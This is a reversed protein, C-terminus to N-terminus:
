QNFGVAVTANSVEDVLIFYGNEPNDKYKDLYLPSASKIDINNISNVKVAEPNPEFSLTDFDLQSKVAAIKVPVTASGYQLLYRKQPVLDDKGLWCLKSNLAKVGELVESGPILIDGRSIDIDDELELTISDGQKAHTLKDKYRNIAKVKSSQGSSLVKVTDGVKVTGSKVKGAYGRFDHFEDSQPRIVYQVNFRFGTTDKAEDVTELYDLLTPGDFWKTAASRKVVNDGVKASVPIFTLNRDELNFKEQLKTIEGRIKLYVSEEYDVLDMKNIVFVINQIEMLSAIFLHRKTQEIIGNRADILILFVSANSAGTIMNRTYEVHGPTDAVIYKRNPTNFYIHAVDITIGQEREATLGDTILSLDIDELGRQKSLNEINEIKDKSLSKTDYLLRGILTSKGDDVSGATSIRLINM